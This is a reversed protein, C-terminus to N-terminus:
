RSDRISEGQSPRLVILLSINMLVTEILISSSSSSICVGSEKEEEEEEAEDNEDEVDDWTYNITFWPEIVAIGNVM